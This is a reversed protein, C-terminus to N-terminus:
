SKIDYFGNQYCIQCIKIDSPGVKSIKIDSPGVKTIKIDSRQIKVLKRTRKLGLSGIKVVEGM